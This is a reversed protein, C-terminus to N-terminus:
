FRDDIQKDVTYAMRQKTHSDDRQGRNESDEHLATTSINNYLDEHSHSTTNQSQMLTHQFGWPLRLIEQM